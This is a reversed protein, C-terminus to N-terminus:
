GLAPQPGVGQFRVVSPGCATAGARQVRVPVAMARDVLELQYGDGESVPTEPDTWRLQSITGGWQGTPTLHFLGLGQALPQGDAGHLRVAAKVIAVSVGM